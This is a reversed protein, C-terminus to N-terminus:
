PRMKHATTTKTIAVSLRAALAEAAELIALKDFWVKVADDYEQTTSAAGIAQAAKAVNGQAARHAKGVISQFTNAPNDLGIELCTEAVVSWSQEFRLPM